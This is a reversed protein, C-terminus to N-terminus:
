TMIVHVDADAGDRVWDVWDIETRYYDLRCNPGACDFFVRPRSSAESSEQAAASGSLLPLCFATAAFFLFPRM